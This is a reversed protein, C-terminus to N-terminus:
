EVIPGAHCVGIEMILYLLIREQPVLGDHTHDTTHYTSYLVRGCGVPEFTVTLPKKGGAMGDDGIVFAKPEDVIPFGEDDMGLTVSNLGSIHNWNGGIDFDSASYLGDTGTEQPGAQGDLWGHLDPDVAEAHDSTYSPAGDADGFAGVNWTENAPNWANAPTDTGGGLIGDYLEVQEPFVNDAWEGSWDTVYLKGGAAVYQRINKLVQPNSLAATNAEGSCPIFIIHYQSMKDLDMMLTTLTGLAVGDIEGGNSYVDFRGAASGPVFVGGADVSGIGMKGLIDQMDDYVGSALAIRPIWQGQGPNHTSPLTTQSQALPVRGPADITIETELRFQGKQVVLWYSGPIVGTLEFNGKHDTLAGGHDEVCEECFVEQPIPAPPQATLYVLADYVPIEHGTPVMGPANGPAWVTGSLTATEDPDIDDQNDDDTDTASPGCAFAFSLPLVLLCSSRLRSM